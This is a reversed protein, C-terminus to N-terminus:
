TESVNKIIKIFEQAKLSAGGILLGDMKAEKIYSLANESNVSGGYLIQLRNSFSSSYLKKMVGRIFLGQVLATDTDCPSGTGIAWVPEYAIVINRAEKETIDKLGRSIQSNLTRLTQGRKREKQNEGICFIAKLNAALTAKMKQNIMEDTEELHIRRESHGLIVYKCGLNKLMKPSIEGTFAGEQKWFCDQSGLKVRTAQRKDRTALYIFPPCIVVEVNKIQKIGGIVSNFLRKAVALNQPNMKWNAVILLSM